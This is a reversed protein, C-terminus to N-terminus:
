VYCPRNLQLCDENPGQDTNYDEFPWRRSSYIITAGDNPVDMDRHLPFNHEMQYCLEPENLESRETIADNNQTEEHDRITQEKLGNQLPMHAAGVQILACYPLVPCSALRM